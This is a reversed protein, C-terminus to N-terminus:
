EMAYDARCHICSIHDAGGVGHISGREAARQRFDYLLGMHGRTLCRTSDCATHEEGKKPMQVEYPSSIILVAFLSSYCAPLLGGAELACFLEMGNQKARNDDSRILLEMSYFKPSRYGQRHCVFEQRVRVEGCKKSRSRRACFGHHKAYQQYFEFAIDVDGFNFCRVEEESLNLFDISGITEDSDITYLDDDAFYKSMGRVGDLNVELEVVNVNDVNAGAHHDHEIENTWSWGQLAKARLRDLGMTQETTCKKKRQSVCVGMSIKGSLGDDDFTFSNTHKSGSHIEDSSNSSCSAASAVM